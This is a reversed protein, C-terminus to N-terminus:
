PKLDVVVSRAVKDHWAQRRADWLPALSDLLYPISFAVEFVITILNRWLGRWFGIPGGTQADRVAIGLAMKGLTQGRRSGNMMAYYVAAPISLLVWLAAVAALASAGSTSSSSSVSNSGQTVAATVALVLIVYGFVLIVSDILIAVLRKWWPALPQHLVPDLRFNSVSVGYGPPVGYGYPSGYGTPAGYGYLSGYGPAAGYGPASPYSPPGYGPLPYGAPYGPYGPPGFAPPGFAPPPYPPAAVPGAPGSGSYTDAPSSASLPLTDHVTGPGPVPLPAPSHPAPRAQTVSPHLHPPYWKGDSALWWGEGQSTDSVRWM